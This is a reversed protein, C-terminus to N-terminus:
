DKPSCLYWLGTINQYSATVTALVTRNNSYLTANLYANSSGSVIQLWWAVNACTNLETSDIIQTTNKNNLYTTQGNQDDSLFYYNVGTVGFTTNMAIGGEWVCPLSSICNVQLKASGYFTTASNINSTPNCGSWLGTTNDRGIISYLFPYNTANSLRFEIYAGKSGAVVQAWWSLTDCRNTGTTYLRYGYIADNQGATANYGAGLTSVSTNTNFAAYNLLTYGGHWVCTLNASHCEVRVIAYLHSSAATTTNASSIAITTSSKATQIYDSNAGTSFSTSVASLGTSSTAFTKSTAVISSDRGSSVKASQVSYTAVSGAKVTSSAIQPQRSISVSTVAAAIVAIAVILAAVSNRAVM